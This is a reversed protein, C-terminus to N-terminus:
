KGEALIEISYKSKLDDTFSAFAPLIAIAAIIITKM